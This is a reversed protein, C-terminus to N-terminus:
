IQGLFASIIIIFFILTAMHGYYSSFDNLFTTSWARKPRFDALVRLRASYYILRIIILAKIQLNVLSCMMWINSWIYSMYLLMLYILVSNTKQIQLTMKTYLERVYYVTRQQRLLLLLCALVCACCCLLM